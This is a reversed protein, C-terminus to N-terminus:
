RCDHSRPPAWDDEDLGGRDQSVLSRSAQRKGGAPTFTTTDQIRLLPHWGLDRIRKWLRPSWLGRDALVLVTLHAPLAPRILRLLRMIPGM